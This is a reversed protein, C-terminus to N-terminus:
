KKDANQAPQRSVKVDIQFHIEEIPKGELVDIEVVEGACVVQWKPEQSQNPPCPPPCVFFQFRGDPGVLTSRQFWTGRPNPLRLEVITAHVCPKETGLRIVTGRVPLGKKMVVQIEPSGASIQYLFAPGYEWKDFALDYRLKERFQIEFRGDEDTTQKHPLGTRFVVQWNGERWEEIASVWWEVGALPKGAEDTVRGRVTIPREGQTASAVFLVFLIFVIITGYRLYNRTLM